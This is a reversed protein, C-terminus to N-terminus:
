EQPVRQPRAIDDLEPDQEIVSKPIPLTYAPDNEELVFTQMTAANGLEPTYTHVIRPRDWRRLDFWRHQEFCLERRREDRVKQIADAQDTFTLDAYGAAKIRERRLTNLDDIAKQLDGARQSYAEARNLLAEANRIASGFMGSYNVDDYKFQVYRKGGGFSSFSMGQNRIFQGTSNGYRLDSATFMAKLSASTPFAGKAGTAFYTIVYNGFSFLIEPNNKCFFFSAADEANKKELNWLKPSATIADTAYRIADDWNRMYLAVRSAFVNAANPNWRFITNKPTAVQKFATMADNIDATIRRYVEAVSSRDFYKIEAGVLDNIPVGKASEATAPDYPEGYLNVLMYYAYARIMHCEAKLQMKADQSGTMDDMAYLVINCMLIQHYYHAWSSDDNMLGTVRIEPEAQWTYYGHGEIRTDVGFSAKKAWDECDDTMIDLYTHLSGNNRKLYVEGYIFESYDAVTKPVIQDRSVEDLFGACSSLTVTLAIFLIIYKSKM